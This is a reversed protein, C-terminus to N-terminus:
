RKRQKMEQILMAVIKVQITVECPLVLKPDECLAVKYLTMVAPQSVYSWMGALCRPMRKDDSNSMVFEWYEVFMSPNYHVRDAVPVTTVIAKNLTEFVVIIKCEGYICVVSGHMWHDPISRPLVAHHLESMM